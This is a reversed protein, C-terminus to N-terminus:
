GANVGFSVPLTVYELGSNPDALVGEINYIEGRHRLRMSADIRSPKRIVVRAVVNSNVQNGALFERASIPVVEAPVDRAVPTWTSKVGGMEDETDVLEEITVRHRLRGAAISM